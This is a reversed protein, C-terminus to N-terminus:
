PEASSIDHNVNCMVFEFKLQQLNPTRNRIGSEHKNVTNWCPGTLRQGELKIRMNLGFELVDM